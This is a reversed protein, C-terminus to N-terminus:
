SDGQRSFDLKGQYRGLFNRGVNILHSLDKVVFPEITIPQPIDELFIKM